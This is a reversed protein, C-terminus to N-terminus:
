GDILPEVFRRSFDGLEMERDGDAISNLVAETFSAVVPSRYLDSWWQQLVTSPAVNPRDARRRGVHFTVEKRIIEDTLIIKAM